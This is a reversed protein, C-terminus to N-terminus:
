PNMGELERLDPLVRGIVACEYQFKALRAELQKVVSEPEDVTAPAPKKGVPAAKAAPRRPAPTAAQAPRTLASITVGYGGPM